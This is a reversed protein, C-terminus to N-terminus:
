RSQNKLETWKAAAVKLAEDPRSKGLIAQQWASGNVENWEGFWATITDKKRALAQQKAILDVDGYAAYVRRVDPDDFLSKAGFGVGFDQVLLKQFKYEGDAKGGFWEILKVADAARAKDAQAQPTMGYFRMWVVTANSGGEGMPMLALKIHGPAQSQQPDNLMRLRYKPLLAFAHAGASFSKLGSLEGTEVCAPSLIKDKQVADVLWTLAQLTGSSDQLIANGQDDTFRGGHSFVLASMFEILWSEQAMGIMVPYEALGKAKIEKAQAAVEAWTKPPASFGAKQLLDANYLFAMYDTYYTLGYQRGRYTMSENCFAETDANYKTLERYEDIPVLWGAEAWEPLWSDSVWLIDVPAGGVFKTIMTERYQAFPANAYAVQIGTKAQFAALHSKVTDVAASWTWFNLPAAAFARPVLALGAGAAVGAVAHKLVSRRSVASPITVAM